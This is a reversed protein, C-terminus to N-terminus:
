SHSTGKRLELKEGVSGQRGEVLELCHTQEM